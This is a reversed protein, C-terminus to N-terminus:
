KVAALMKDAGSVEFQGPKELNISKVVGDEVLMSYRQSRIGMGRSTLDQDVGIAKAFDANGDGMMRVKGPAKLEAGWAAMVTADNVSVCWIEDVKAAKLKDAESVYGPVHQASCTRTFAGPLGFIVIKKGKAAEATKVATPGTACGMTFEGQIEWLTIEPLKDGAKITM